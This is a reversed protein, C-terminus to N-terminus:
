EQGQVGVGDENEALCLMQMTGRYVIVYYEFEDWRTAESHSM